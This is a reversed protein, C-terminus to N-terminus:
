FKERGGKKEEEDMSKEKENERMEVEKKNEQMEVEKKNEQMEIEKLKLIGRKPPETTKPPATKKCCRKLCPLSCLTIM